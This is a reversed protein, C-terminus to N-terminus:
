SQTSALPGNPGSTTTLVLGKRELPDFSTTRGLKPLGKLSLRAVALRIEELPLTETAGSFPATITSIKLNLNADMVRFVSLLTLTCRFFNLNEKAYM